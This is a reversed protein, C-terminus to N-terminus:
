SSRLAGAAESRDGISLNYSDTPRRSQGGAGFATRMSDIGVAASGTGSPGFARRIWQAGWLRKAIKIVGWRTVM